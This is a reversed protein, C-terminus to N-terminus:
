DLAAVNASNALLYFKGQAAAELGGNCRIVWEVEGEQALRSDWVGSWVYNADPNLSITSSVSAGTTKDPYVLVAEAGTPQSTGVVPTFTGSCVIENGRVFKQM